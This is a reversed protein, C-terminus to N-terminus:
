QFHWKSTTHLISTFNFLAAVCVKTIIM